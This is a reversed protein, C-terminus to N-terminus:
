AARRDRHGVAGRESRTGRCASARAARVPGGGDALPRDRGVDLLVMGLDQEGDRRRCPRRTRGLDVALMVEEDVVDLEIAQDGVSLQELVGGHV